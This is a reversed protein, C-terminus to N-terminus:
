GSSFRKGDTEPNAFLTFTPVERMGPLVPAILAFRHRVAELTVAGHDHDIVVVAARENLFEASQDLM